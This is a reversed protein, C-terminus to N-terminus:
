KVLLNKEFLNAQKTASNIQLICCFAIFVKIAKTVAIGRGSRFTDNFFTKATDEDEMQTLQRVSEANAPNCVTETDFFM